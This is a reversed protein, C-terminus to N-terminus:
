SGTSLQEGFWTELVLNEGLPHLLHVTQQVPIGKGAGNYGEAHPIKSSLADPNWRPHVGCGKTSLSSGGTLSSAPWPTHGELRSQAKIQKQFTHHTATTLWKRCPFVGLVLPHIHKSHIRGNKIVFLYLHLTLSRLTAMKARTLLLGPTRPLYRSKKPKVNEKLIQVWEM